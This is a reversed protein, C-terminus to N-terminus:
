QFSVPVSRYVPFNGSPYITTLIFFIRKRVVKCSVAAIPESRGGRVLHRLGHAVRQLIRAQRGIADVVHVTVSGGRVAPVNRFTVRCVRDETRAHGEGGVFAVHPVREAGAASQFRDEGQAPHLVTEHRRGEVKFGITDVGIARIEVVHRAAQSREILGVDHRVVEGEAHDIRAENEALQAVSVFETRFVRLLHGNEIRVADWFGPRDGETREGGCRSAQGGFFKEIPRKEIQEVIQEFIREAFLGAGGDGQNQRQTSQFVGGFKRFRRKGSLLHGLNCVLLRVAVAENNTWLSAGSNRPACRPPRSEQM